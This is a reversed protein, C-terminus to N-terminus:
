SIPRARMKSKFMVVALWPRFEERAQLAYIPPSSSVRLYETRKVDLFSPSVMLIMEQRGRERATIEENSFPSCCCLSCVRMDCPDSFASLAM